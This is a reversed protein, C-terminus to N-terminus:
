LLSKILPPAFAMVEQKTVATVMRLVSVAGYTNPLGIVWYPSGTVVSSADIQRLYKTVGTVSVYGSMQKQQTFRYLYEILGILCARLIREQRKMRMDSPLTPDFTDKLGGYVEKLPTHLVDALRQVQERARVYREYSIGFQPLRQELLAEVSDLFEKPPLSQARLRQRARRELALAHGYLELEFLLDSRQEEQLFLSWSGAEPHKLSGATLIAAIIIVESQVGLEEGALIMRAYRPSISIAALMLGVPTLQEEKEDLAGLYRLSRESQALAQPTPKHLFPLDRLSYGAKTLV